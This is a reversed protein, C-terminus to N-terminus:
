RKLWKTKEYYIDRMNLAIPRGINEIPRKRVKFTEKKM